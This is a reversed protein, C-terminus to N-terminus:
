KKFAPVLSPLWLATHRLKVAHRRGAECGDRAPRDAGREMQNGTTCLCLGGMKMKLFQFGVSTGSSYEPM